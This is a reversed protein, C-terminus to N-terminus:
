LIILKSSWQHDFTKLIIRNRGKSLPTNFTHSIKGANVKLREWKGGSVYCEVEKITPDVSIEIRQLQQSKPDIEVLNWQAKLFRQRLKTKFPTDQMLAIRDIDLPNSEHSVAGSNQNFIIEFGFAAIRKQVRADFEGYPYAYSRPTVALHHQMWALGKQTDADIQADDLRTLHPHTYSHLALEGYHMTDKLEEITMFDPYKQDSGEIYVALIFPYGFERFLPLGHTYFSKYSDDISFLVWKPPLPKQSKLHEQLEQLSAVHYGNERLYTFVERLKVTSISTTPHRTDDFRHLVFIQAANPLTQAM